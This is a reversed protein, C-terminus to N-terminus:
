DMPLSVYIVRPHNGPNLFSCVNMDVCIVIKEVGLSCLSHRIRHSNPKILFASLVYNKHHSCLHVQNKNVRTAPKSFEKTNSIGLYSHLTLM